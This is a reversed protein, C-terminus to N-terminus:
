YLNIQFYLLAIFNPVNLGEIVLFNFFHYRTYQIAIEKKNNHFIKSWSPM